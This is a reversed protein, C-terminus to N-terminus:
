LLSSGSDDADGSIVMQLLLENWTDVPGPLCWHMCDIKIKKDGDFPHYTRYPGPHGDPRLLSLHYTDLLKMRVGNSAGIAAAKEFEEVEVRRMIFGHDGINIEWEKFPRTRNCVIENPLEGRESHDPSWTKLIVFPKHKSTAISKLSLQLAKRYIEDIAIKKLELHPCYHCGIVQNNEYIISSKYFHPGISIVVYDYNNYENTWKSDLIDLHLHLHIESADGHNDTTEYHILYPAWIVYITLNYSPYYWTRSNYASDHYIDHPKEVKSLQCILSFVLGHCISDGIFAFSKDRMANLFKLPDFPPLDCANPKWRWHLYGTDPRGNNLCNLYPPILNCTENTYAPEAPSPIWEGVWLDCEEKKLQQEQVTSEKTPPRINLADQKELSLSFQEAEVAWANFNSDFLYCIAGALFIICILKFFILSISSRGDKALLPQHDGVMVEDAM